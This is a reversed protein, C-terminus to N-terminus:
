RLFHIQNSFHNRENSFLLHSLENHIAAQSQDAYVHHGADDVVNVEVNEIGAEQEVVLEPM